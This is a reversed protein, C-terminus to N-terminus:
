KPMKGLEGIPLVKEVVRGSRYCGERNETIKPSSVKMYGLMHGFWNLISQNILEM